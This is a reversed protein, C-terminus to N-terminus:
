SLARKAFQNVVNVVAPHEPNADYIDLTMQALDREIHTSGNHAIDMLMMRFEPHLLATATNM